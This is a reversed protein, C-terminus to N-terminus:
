QHGKPQKHNKPICTECLKTNNCRQGSAEYNAMILPMHFISSPAFSKKGVFRQIHKTEQKVDLKQVKHIMTDAHHKCQRSPCRAISGLKTRLKAAIPIQLSTQKRQTNSAKHWRITKESAHKILHDLRKKPTAPRSHTFHTSQESLGKSTNISLAIRSPLALDDLKKTRFRNPEIAVETTSRKKDMKEFVGKKNMKEFVSRFSVCVFSLIETILFSHLIRVYM